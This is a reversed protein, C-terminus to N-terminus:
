GSLLPQIKEVLQNLNGSRFGELDLAVFKFGIEHFRRIIDTRVVPQMFIALWETGVEIRAVEGAHVRVRFEPIGLGRIMAEAEEVMRLRQPTVEVGYAIRSALCPSAPKDDVPLLWYSALERVQAKTIGLEALPSRVAFDAAARLGPRFDSLDDKNTGTAIIWASPLQCRLSELKSFLHSKCHFCRQADNRAYDADLLEDTQIIQHRIGILQALERAQALEHRSLSPSDATIALSNTGVALYAAQAVVTSDVGGSFAVLIGPFGAFWELLGSALLEINHTM